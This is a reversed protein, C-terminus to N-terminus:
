TKREPSDPARRRCPFRTPSENLIQGWSLLPLLGPSSSLHSPGCRRLGLVLTSTSSSVPIEAQSNSHIASHPKRHQCMAVISRPRLGFIATYIVSDESSLSFSFSASAASRAPNQAKFFHLTTLQYHVSRRVNDRHSYQFCAAGLVLAADRRIWWVCGATLSMVIVNTLIVMGFSIRHDVYISSFHLRIRVGFYLGSIARSFILLPLWLIPLLYGACERWCRYIFRSDTVANYANTFHRRRM